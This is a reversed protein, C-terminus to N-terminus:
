FYCYCSWPPLLLSQRWDVFIYRQSMHSDINMKNVLANGWSKAHNNLQICATKKGVSIRGSEVLGDLVDTDLNVPTTHLYQTSLLHDCEFNGM